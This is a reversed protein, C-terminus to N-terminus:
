RRTLSLQNMGEAGDMAAKRGTEIAEKAIDLGGKEHGVRVRGRLGIIRRWSPCLGRPLAPDFGCAIREEDEFGGTPSHDGADSAPQDLRFPLHDGRAGNEDEILGLTADFAPGISKKPTGTPDQAVEKEVSFCLFSPRGKARFRTVAWRLCVRAIVVQLRTSAFRGRETTGFSFAHPDVPRPFSTENATQGVRVLKFVTAHDFLYQNEEKPYDANKSRDKEWVNERVM